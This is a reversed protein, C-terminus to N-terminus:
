SSPIPSRGMRNSGIVGRRKMEAQALKRFEPDTRVQEIAEAIREARHSTLYDEAMIRLDRASYERLKEGRAAIQRSQIADPMDGNRSQSPRGVRDLCWKANCGGQLKSLSAKPSAHKVIFSTSAHNADLIPDTISGRLKM